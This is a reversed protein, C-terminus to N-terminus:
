SIVAKSLIDCMLVKLYVNQFQSSFEFSRQSNIESSFGMNCAHKLFPSHGRFLLHYFGLVSCNVTMEVLFGNGKEVDCSWIPGESHDCALCM